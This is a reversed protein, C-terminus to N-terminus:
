SIAYSVTVSAEAVLEPLEVSLTEKNSPNLNSADAEAHLVLQNADSDEVMNVVRGVYVGSAKALAEAKEKAADVAATLAEKYAADRDAVSFSLDSFQVVQADACENLLQTLNAAPIDSVVITGPISYGVIQGSNDYYYTEYGTEIWNGDWDWYGGMVQEETIGGYVPQSPAQTRAINQKEAGVSELIQIITSAKAELAEQAQEETDGDGQIHITVHAIDAVVNSHASASVTIANDASGNSQACGTVMLSLVLTTTVAVLALIRKM